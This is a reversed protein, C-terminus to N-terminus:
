PTVTCIKHCYLNVATQLTYILFQVHQSVYRSVFMATSTFMDSEHLLLVFKTCVYRLQLKYHKSVICTQSVQKSTVARIRYHCLKVATRLTYICYLGRFLLHYLCLHLCTLKYPFLLLFATTVFDFWLKCHISVLCAPLIIHYLCQDTSTFVLTRPYCYVSLISM